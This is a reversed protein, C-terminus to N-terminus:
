PHRLRAHQLDLTSINWVGIWGTRNEGPVLVEYWNEIRSIVLGPKGKEWLPGRRQVRPIQNTPVKTVYPPDPLLFVGNDNDFLPIVLTGVVPDSM